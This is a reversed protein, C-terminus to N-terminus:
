CGREKRSEFGKLPDHKPQSTIDPRWEPHTWSEFLTSFFNTSAGNGM